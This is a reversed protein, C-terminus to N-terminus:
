TDVGALTLRFAGLFVFPWRMRSVFRKSVCPSIHKADILVCIRESFGITKNVNCPDIVVGHIVIADDVCTPDGNTVFSWDNDMSRLGSPNRSAFADHRDWLHFGISTANNEPGVQYVLTFM